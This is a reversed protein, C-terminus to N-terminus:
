YLQDSGNKKAEAIRRYLTRRSTNYMAAIQDMTYEKQLREIDSLYIQASPSGSIYLGKEKAGANRRNMMELRNTDVKMIVSSGNIDEYPEFTIGNHELLKRLKAYSEEHIRRIDLEYIDNM